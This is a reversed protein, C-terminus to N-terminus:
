KDENNSHSQQPATGCLCILHQNNGKAKFAAATSERLGKVKLLDDRARECDDKASTGTFAAVSAVSWASKYVVTVLFLTYPHSGQCAQSPEAQSPTAPQQADAISSLVLAASIAGAMVSLRRM